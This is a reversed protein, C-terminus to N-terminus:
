VGDPTLSVTLGELKKGASDTIRFCFGWKLATNSVKLMVRATGEPLTVNVQDDDLNLGRSVPSDLIEEGDLWAKVSDNSGIRFQAAQARPSTVYCVAYITTWDTPSFIGTLDILGQWSEGRFPFWGVEV